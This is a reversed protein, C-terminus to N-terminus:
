LRIPGGNDLHDTMSKLTTICCMVTNSGESIKKEAEIESEKDKSIGITHISPWKINHWIDIHLEKM